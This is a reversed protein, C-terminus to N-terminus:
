KSGSFDPYWPSVEIRINSMREALRLEPANRGRAESAVYYADLKILANLLASLSWSARQPDVDVAKEDLYAGYLQLAAVEIEADSTMDTSWEFGEIRWVVGAATCHLTVETASLGRDRALLVSVGTTLELQRSARLAQGIQLAREKWIPRMSSVHLPWLTEAKIQFFDGSYRHDFVGEDPFFVIPRSISVIEGETVSVVDCVELADRLNFDYLDRVAVPFEIKLGANSM